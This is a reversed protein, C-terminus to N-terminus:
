PKSLTLQGDPGEDYQWGSEPSFNTTVSGDPERKCHPPIVIRFDISASASLSGTGEVHTSEAAGLAPALVLLAILLRM